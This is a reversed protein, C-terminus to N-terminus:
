SYGPAIDDNAKMTQNIMTKELMAPDHRAVHPQRFALDCLMGGVIALPKQAQSGISTGIAAPFGLNSSYSAARDDGTRVPAPRIM